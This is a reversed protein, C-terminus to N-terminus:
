PLFRVEPELQFGTQEKVTKTVHAMVAKIQACTAGGRNIVFGAHKESVQACGVTYGKLGCQDILASAYAGEPRKFTSGASGYELPQKSRRREMYDEMRASIEEKKGPHLRFVASLILYQRGSFMSHRYSFALEEGSAQRLNGEEDLYRVTTVIDKLEGGYAGANMYVGGGVSGPIGYAFELGSLGEDRAMRCLDTLLAGSQATIEGPATLCLRNYSKGLHLVALPLPDDSVLLNSGRGLYFVPKEYQRCYKAAAVAEEESRPEIFVPAEGGVRFTTHLAMPEDEMFPIEATKLAEAM